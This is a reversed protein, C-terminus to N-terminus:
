AIVGLVTLGLLLVPAAGTLSDIRDMVGGHGPFIRGSDKMGAFRKLLSETLDGVISFAVAALCLPLFREPPVQFWQSGAIAVVASVALAGLVGEWTKGPSVEPALRRRGFSRGVFFAGIDAVWVLVLAFLVWQAGSPQALRLRVLALWSPVLALVGALGASWPAVRHPALVIWALAVLWWLVAGGLVLELGSPTGSVRWAVWLLVGVLLVYALRWGPAALRLFASWEWAGVLAMGTLVAVTAWQPLALLVVLLLAALVVATLVRKRLAETV